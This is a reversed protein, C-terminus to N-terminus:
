ILVGLTTSYGEWGILYFILCLSDGWDGNLKHRLSIERKELDLASEEYVIDEDM